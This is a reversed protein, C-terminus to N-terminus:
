AIKEIRSTHVNKDHPNRIYASSPQLRFVVDLYMDIRDAVMISTSTSKVVGRQQQISSDRREAHLATKNSISAAYFEGGQFIQIVM